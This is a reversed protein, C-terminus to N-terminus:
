AEAWARLQGTGTLTIAYIAGSYNTAFSAGVLFPLGNGWTFGSVPSIEVDTTGTNSIVMQRRSNVDSASFVPVDAITDVAGVLVAATVSDGDLFRQIQVGGRDDASVPRSQIVIANDPM